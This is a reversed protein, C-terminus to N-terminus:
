QDPLLHITPFSVFAAITGSKNPIKQNHSSDFQLGQLTLIQEPGDDVALALQIPEATQQYLLRLQSKDAQGSPHRVDWALAAGERSSSLSVLAPGPAAAAGADFRDNTHAHLGSSSDATM